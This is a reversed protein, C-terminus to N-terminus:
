SVTALRIRPTDLFAFSAPEKPSSPHGESGALPSAMQTLNRSRRRLDGAWERVLRRMLFIREEREEGLARRGGRRLCTKDRSAGM